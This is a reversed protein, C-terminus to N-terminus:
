PATVAVQQRLAGTVRDYILIRQDQTVIAVWDRGQTVAEIKAGQPLVLNEVMPPTQPSPFRTVVVGVVTIVGFIMCALLGIVMWQLARM